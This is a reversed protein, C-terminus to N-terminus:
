FAYDIGFPALFSIKAMLDCAQMTCSVAGWQLEPTVLDSAQRYDMQCHFLHLFHIATANSIQQKKSLNNWEENHTVQMGAIWPVIFCTFSTFTWLATKKYLKLMEITSFNFLQFTSFNFLQFFASTSGIARPWTVTLLLQNRGNWSLRELSKAWKQVPTLPPHIVSVLLARNEPFFGTRACHAYIHVYACQGKERSQHSPNLRYQM